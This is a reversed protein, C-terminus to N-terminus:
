DIEVLLQGAEIATCIAPLLSDLWKLLDVTRTNRVRLWVVQPGSKAALRFRGFDEDKTMIVADRSLALDWVAQDSASGFGLEVIHEAFHGKASLWRALAPPLQEDVLFRM